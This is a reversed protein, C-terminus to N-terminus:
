RKENQLVLILQHHINPVFSFPYGYPFIRKHRQYLVTIGRLQFDYAELSRALDAHFMVYKSGHRYDSVIVAMYKKSKLVRGCAGLIRTVEGLFIKYDHINGLDRPDDSYKTDLGNAIREQRAKHDEKHLINGYPPSTLVFDISNEPLERLVERADGQIVRQNHNSFINNPLERLLREHTLQVYRPNLEIGIGFREQLACAKLTSGVGVFPDLVVANRKTFFRILRAVDTFSFPAPHQREIQADPHSAGLGKQIWVSVTEPLWETATLENLKNRSDIQRIKTDSSVVFPSIEGIGDTELQQANIDTLPQFNNQELAMQKVPHTLNFDELGAILREPFYENKSERALAAVPRRGRKNLTILPTTARKTRLDVVADRDIIWDRGVKSAKLQGARVLLRVHQVTNGLLEAVQRVTLLEGNSMM